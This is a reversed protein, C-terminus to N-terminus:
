SGVGRFGCAFKGGGGGVSGGARRSGCRGAGGGGLSRDMMM